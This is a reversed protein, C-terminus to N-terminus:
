RATAGASDLFPESSRPPDLGLSSAAGSQLRDRLDRAWQDFVERAQAMNTTSNNVGWVNSGYQRDIAEAIVVRSAGDALVAGVTISGGGRSFTIGPSSQDLRSSEVPASLVIKVVQPAVILTDAQPTSVFTYGASGLVNQMSTAFASQLQTVASDPLMYSEGFDATAGPAATNRANAPVVLTKLMITRYKTWNTGPRVYAYAVKSGQMRQLGGAITQPPQQQQAAASGCLATAFAFTAAHTMMRKSTNM